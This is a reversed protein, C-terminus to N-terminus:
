GTIGPRGVQQLAATRRLYEDEDIEGEAFRRDLVAQADTPADEGLRGGRSGRGSLVLFGATGLLAGLLVLAMVVATMAEWHLGTQYGDWMM